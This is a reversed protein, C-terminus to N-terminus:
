GEEDVTPSDSRSSSDSMARPAPSAARKGQHYHHPLTTQRLLLTPTATQRPSPPPQSHLLPLLLPHLLRRSSTTSSTTMSRWITWDFGRRGSRDDGWAAILRWEWRGDRESESESLYSEGESVGGEELRDVVWSEEGQVRRFPHLRVPAHPLTPPGFTPRGRTPVPPDPLLTPSRANPIPHSRQDQPQTNDRPLKFILSSAGRPRARRDAWRASLLLPPSRVKLMDSNPFLERRVLAQALVQPPPM